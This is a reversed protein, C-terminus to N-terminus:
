PYVGTRIKNQAATRKMSRVKPSYRIHYRIPTLRQTNSNNGSLPQLIHGIESSVGGRTHVIFMVRKRYKCISPIATIEYKNQKNDNLQFM